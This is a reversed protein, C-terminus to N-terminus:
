VAAFDIDWVSLCPHPTLSPSGPCMGQEPSSSPAAESPTQTKDTQCREPSSAAQCWSSSLEPVAKHLSCLPKSGKLGRDACAVRFGQPSLTHPTQLLDGQSHQHKM